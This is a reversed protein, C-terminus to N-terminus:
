ASFSIAILVRKVLKNMLIHLPYAIGIAIIISLIASWLWYSFVLSAIPKCLYEHVLYLELTISGLFSLVSITPKLFQRNDLFEMLNAMVFLLPICSLYYLFFYVPRSTDIIHGSKLLVALVPLSISFVIFLLNDGKFTIKEYLFKGFPIALLVVPLRYIFLGNIPYSDFFLLGILLLGLCIYLWIISVRFCRSLRFILPAILYVFLIMVIFWWTMFGNSGKITDIQFITNITGHPLQDRFIFAMPIVVVFYTPLIRIIRRIYFSKINENKNLSYFLGIGSLLFFVEVGIDGCSLLGTHYFMILLIAVGMLPKRYESLINHKM